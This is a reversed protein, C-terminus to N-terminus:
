GCAPRRVRPGTVIGGIDDPDIAVAASSRQQAHAIALPLGLVLLLLATRKM